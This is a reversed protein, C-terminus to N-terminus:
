FVVPSGVVFTDKVFIRSPSPSKYVLWSVALRLGVVCVLADLKLTAGTSSISGESWTDPLLPGNVWFLMVMLAFWFVGNEFKRRRSGM